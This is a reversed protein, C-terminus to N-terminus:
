NAAYVVRCDGEITTLRDNSSDVFTLRGGEDYIVKGKSVGDFTREGYTYCTVAAPKDEYYADRAEKEAETVMCGSLTVGMAAAVAILKLRM